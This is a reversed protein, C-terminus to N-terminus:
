FDCTVYWPRGILFDSWREHPRDGIDQGIDEIVEDVSQGICLLDVSKKLGQTDHGLIALM